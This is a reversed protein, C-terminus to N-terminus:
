AFWWDGVGVSEIKREVKVLLVPNTYANVVFFSCNVYEVAVWRVLALGEDFLLEVWNSDYEWVYDLGSCRSSGRCWQPRVGHRPTIVVTRRILACAALPRPPHLDIVGDTRQSAALSSTRLKYSNIQSLEPKGLTSYNILGGFYGQQLLKEVMEVKVHNVM